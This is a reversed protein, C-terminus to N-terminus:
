VFAVCAFEYMCIWDFECTGYASYADEMADSDLSQISRESAPRLQGSLKSQQIKSHEGHPASDGGEEVEDTITYLAARAEAEMQLSKRKNLYGPPMAGGLPVGGELGGALGQILSKRQQMAARDIAVVPDAKVTKSVEKETNQNQQTWFSKSNSISARIEDRNAGLQALPDKGDGPGAGGGAASAAAFASLRRAPSGSVAQLAGALGAVVGKSKEPSASSAAATTMVDSADPFHWQSKKLVANVYYHKNKTKSHRIEWGVPLQKEEASEPTAVSLEDDDAKDTADVTDVGATDKDSSEKEKPVNKGQTKTSFRKQDASDSHSSSDSGSRSWSDSRSYSRSRSRSRSSGSRSYSRSRSRSFSGDRTDNKRYKKKDAKRGRDEDKGVKEKKKEKSKDKGKGVAGSSSSFNNAPKM